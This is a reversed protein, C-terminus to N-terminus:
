PTRGGAGSGAGRNDKLQRYGPKASEQMDIRGANVCADWSGVHRGFGTQRLTIFPLVASRSM